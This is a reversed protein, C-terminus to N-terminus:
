AQLAERTFRARANITGGLLLQTPLLLVVGALVLIDIDIM